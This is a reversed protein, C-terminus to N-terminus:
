LSQTLLAHREEQEARAVDADPTASVPRLAEIDEADVTQVYAFGKGIYLLSLMAAFCGGAFAFFEQPQTLRGGVAGVIVVTLLNGAAVTLLWCSQVVATMSEPAQSYALELGTISFMIEGATMIAYQPVQWLMHISRPPAGDVVMELAGSAVFALSCAVMGAVMRKIPRVRFGLRQVLPYVGRDFTPILVLILISNFVQMQEPQITFHALPPPLRGDMRRAQFVWRSAQQDFLAWFLPAPAFLALVRLLLKVDEVAAESHVDKAGDLWHPPMTQGEKLIVQKKSPKKVLPKPASAGGSDGGEELAPSSPRPPSPLPSAAGRAVPGPPPPPLPPATAPAPPRPPRWSTDATTSGSAPAPSGVPAYGGGPRRRLAALVVAAVTAAVNGAPPVHAYRRRGALLSGLAALMLCAPLSFAAAYGYARRVAPTALTAVTSGANIAFYFTAFYTRLLADRCGGGAPAASEVQDGGFTSVCPKIGGTGAAILALGALAGVRGAGVPVAELAAGAMVWNGAIYVLSLYLITCYKGLYSDSLLAGALPAAYSAMIFLHVAETAAGEALRLSRALYVALLARLGYFCFRECFETGVIFWVAAPLRGGGGGGGGGAAM